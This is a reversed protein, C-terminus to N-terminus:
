ATRLLRSARQRVYRGTPSDDAADAITAIWGDILTGADRATIRWAHRGEVERRLDTRTVDELSLHVGGIWMACRQRLRPLLMTPVTDYLPALRVTGPPDLLLSLNKAHADSNGILVTLVMAGALRRLEGTPDAARDRLLAAVDRFGPGGDSQYKIRGSREMPDHGMAQLVDEQHIRHVVGDVTRRDYREVILCPRGDLELLQPEITTLGVAHALRLADAEHVVVGPHALPDPKLLHTSPLGGVPRAWGSGGDHAVLLLKEQVGALSLESDDQVGLPQDPLAAVAAALDERTAYPVAGPAPPGGTDASERAPDRIVLAGAVDRGYAAILGWTDSAPLDRRAALVLRAPGEPLLGSLFAGADQGADSVPLSCSIV